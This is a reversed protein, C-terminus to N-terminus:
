LKLLKVNSKVVDASKHLAKLEDENLKLKVIEKIGGHGLKVPVGIVVDNLDYEGELYAACPLVRNEDKVIAEVMVAVAMAPAHYASGTKLLAVIEGGAKRTRTIIQAIDDSSLMETVPVGAITTYRPLAVMTDGHSGLVMAQVDKVSVSLKEAVFHALRTSDLVGAMGFVREKPFGTVKLALYTMVDLPNTVVILIPQPKFDKVDTCVDRVIKENTSLLEERTMGPKRPVGATLVVIDCGNMDNINNTGTVTADYFGIPRLQAMDLGKGQPM